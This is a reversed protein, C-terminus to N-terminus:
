IHEVRILASRGRHRFPDAVIEVRIRSPCIGLLREVRPRLLEALPEVLDASARRSSAAGHIRITLARTVENITSANMMTPANAPEARPLTRGDCCRLSLELSMTLNPVPKMAVSAASTSPSRTADAFVEYSALASSIWCDAALIM